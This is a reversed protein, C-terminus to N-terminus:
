GRAPSLPSDSCSLAWPARHAAPGDKGAKAHQLVVRQRASDREDHVCNTRVSGAASVLRALWLQPPGPMWGPMTDRFFCIVTAPARHEAVESVVRPLPDSFCGRFEFPLETTAWGSPSTSCTRFLDMLGPAAPVSPDCAPPRALLRTCVGDAAGGGFLQGDFRPAGLDGGQEHLAGVSLAFHGV